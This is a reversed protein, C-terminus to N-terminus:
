LIACGGDGMLFAGEDLCPVHVFALAHDVLHKNNLAKISIGFCPAQRWDCNGAVPVNVEDVARLVVAPAVTVRALLADRHELSNNSKAVM